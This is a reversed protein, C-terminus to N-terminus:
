SFMNFIFTKKPKTSLSAMKNIVDLGELKGTNENDLHFKERKMRTGWSNKVRFYDIGKSSGYAVAAVGHDPEDRCRGNFMGKVYGFFSLGMGTALSTVGEDSIFQTRQVVISKFKNSVSESLQM